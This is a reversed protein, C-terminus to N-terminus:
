SCQPFWSLTIDAAGLLQQNGDFDIETAGFSAASTPDGDGIVLGEAIRVNSSSAQLPYLVCDKCSIKIVLAHRDFPFAADFM